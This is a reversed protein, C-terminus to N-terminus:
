EKNESSLVDAHVEGETEVVGADGSEIESRYTDTVFRVAVPLAAANEEESAVHKAFKVFDAREFLSRVEGLLEEPADTDKMRGFIEATTMEM